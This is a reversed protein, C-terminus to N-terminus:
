TKVKIEPNAPLSHRTALRVRSIVRRRAVALTPFLILSRNLQDQIKLNPIVESEIIDQVYKGFQECENMFKNKEGHRLDITKTFLTISSSKITHRANVTVGFQHSPYVLIGVPLGFSLCYALVQNIDANSMETQDEDESHLQKYKADLVLILRRNQRVLIDPKQGINGEVDLTGPPNYFGPGTITYKGLKQRLYGRIFKEFLKNMDVLFSAFDLEGTNQFNMSSHDLIMKSMIILPRYAMNLRSYTIRPLNQSLSPTLSVSEFYHLLGKVHRRIDDDLPVRLLHFLTYKLIRNEIIDSTFDSYKCYIRELTLANARMNEEILVRGRITRLNDEQDVYGKQIGQRALSSVRTLFYSIIGQFLDPSTEYGIEEPQFEVLGETYFLMRFFNLDPIKPRIRIVHGRLVINGVHQRAELRYRNRGIKIVRIRKSFRPSELVDVEAKILEVSDSKGYESLEIVPRTLLKVV